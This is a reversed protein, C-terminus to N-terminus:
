HAWGMKKRLQLFRPDSHLSDFVPDVTLVLMDSSREQYSKELADFAQDKQGMALSLFALEYYAPPAQDPPKELAARWQLAEERRGQALEVAALHAM